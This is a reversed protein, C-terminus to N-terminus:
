NGTGYTALQWKYDEENLRPIRKITGNFEDLSDTYEITGYYDESYMKKVILNNVGKGLDDVTLFEGGGLYIGISGNKQFSDFLLLDGYIALELTELKSNPTDSSTKGHTVDYLVGEYLVQQKFDERLITSKDLLNTDKVFKKVLNYDDSLVVGNGLDIYSDLRFTYKPISLSEVVSSVNHVLEILSIGNTVPLVKTPSDSAYSVPYTKIELEENNM